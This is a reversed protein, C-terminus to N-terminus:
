VAGGRFGRVIAEIMEPLRLERLLKIFLPEQATKEWEQVVAKGSEEIFVESRRFSVMGLDKLQRITDEIDAHSAAPVVTNPEIEHGGRSALFGTGQTRTPCGGM